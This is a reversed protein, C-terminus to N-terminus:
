HVLERVLQLYGGGDLMRRPDAAALGNDLDPLASNSDDALLHLAIRRRFRRLDLSAGARADEARLLEAQACEEVDILEALWGGGYPDAIVKEPDDGLVGNRCGLRAVVPAGIHLAGDDFELTCITEAHQLLGSVARWRVQRPCAILAAAFEDLGFQWRGPSGAVRQLWTHGRSYRRDDPFEVGPHRRPEGWAARGGASIAPRRRLAADLPCCECDFHRDCLKYSLVGASMWVCTQPLAIDVHHTM